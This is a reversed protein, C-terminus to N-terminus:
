VEIELKEVVTQIQSERLDPNWNLEVHEVSKLARRYNSELDRLYDVTYSSEGDRGRKRIRELCVEPEAHLYVLKAVKLRAETRAIHRYCHWESKSINGAARHMQAFTKDGLLSRDMIAVPPRRDSRTGRVFRRADNYYEIRKNLMFLQFAYAYKRKNSLFQQLLPSNVYEPYRRVRHGRRRLYRCLSRCFTSKGVGISGEVVIVRGCKRPARLRRKTYRRSLRDVCPPRLAVHRPRHTSHPM